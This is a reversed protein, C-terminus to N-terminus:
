KIATIKKIKSTSIVKIIGSGTIEYMVFIKENIVIDKNKM